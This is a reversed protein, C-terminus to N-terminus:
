ASTRPTFTILADSHHHSFSMSRLYEILPTDSADVTVGGRPPEAPQEDLLNWDESMADTSRSGIGPDRYAIHSRPVLHHREAIVVAGFRTALRLAAPHSGYACAIVRGTPLLGDDSLLAEVTATAVGTSRFEPAVVLDAVTTPTSDDASERLTMVGALVPDHSTNVSWRHMATHIEITSFPDPTRCTRPPRFSMSEDVDGSRTLLRRAPPRPGGVQRDLRVLPTQTLPSDTM